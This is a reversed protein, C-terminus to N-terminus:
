KINTNRYNPSDKTINMDHPHSEVSGASTIRVFEINNQFEEINKSGCYGFCSKVGGVLQHVTEGLLGKYPVLGEVGEPVLKKVDSLNQFYRDSSGSKMAAVSGMGRYVKYSRGEWLVIEGPSEDTGAFIGGLMVANAGAAISKSIDGSFRMGGDSIIKKNMKQAIDSCEIVSTLQPVGVGAVIRTTCSSGAGIGIKIIDAGNDILAKTGESTAVNGAILDIDPHKIKIKKVVDLVGQSHGHATDLVLADVNSDVLADVRDMVDKDTGIAAAVILRGHMDKTANPYKEKKQIDKVTILGKLNGTEGVVLLKEIRHKQLVSKAEDLTTGLPVTVLNSSTMRDKVKLKLNEEFRIDRNTLIGVLKTNDIVPVGSIKYQKMMNLADEINKDSSITIPDLIMGSESRKVIDVELAQQQISLNKHIVGMGGERSLAIAMASETVTDMAASIFPINLTIKSSLQTSLDVERPLVTSYKPKLLVDDFTLALPINNQNKM